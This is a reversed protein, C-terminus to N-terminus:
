REQNNSSTNNSLSKRNIKAHIETKVYDSCYPCLTIHRMYKSKLPGDEKKEYCLAYLKKDSPCNPTRVKPLTRFEEAATQLLQEIKSDTPKRKKGM